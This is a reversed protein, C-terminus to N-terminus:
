TLSIPHAHNALPIVKNKADKDAGFDLLALLISKRGKSAAMMLATNGNADREELEKYGAAILTRVVGEDGREAATVLTKDGYREIAKFAAQKIEDSIIPSLKSAKRAEEAAKRAREAEVARRTEEEKRAREAEEAAKRARQAEVARHTEEEKRAREAEEAAKRAREIAGVAESL